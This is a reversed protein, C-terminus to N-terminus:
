EEEGADARMANQGILLGNAISWSLVAAYLEANAIGPDKRTYIMEVSGNLTEVAGIPKGDRVCVSFVERDPDHMFKYYEECFDSVEIRRGVDIFSRESAVRTFSLGNILADKAHRDFGVVPMSCRNGRLIRAMSERGPDIMLQAKIREKEAGGVACWFEGAHIVTFNEDLLAEALREAATCERFLALFGFVGGFTRLRELKYFILDDTLLEIFLSESGILTWLKALEPAYFLLEPSALIFRRVEDRCPLGYENYVKTNDGAYKLKAAIEAFSPEIRLGDADLAYPVADFFDRDYGIFMEEPKM